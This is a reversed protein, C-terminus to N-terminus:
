PESQQILICDSIQKKCKSLGQKVDGLKDGPSGLTHVTTGRKLTEGEAMSEYKELNNKIIPILVPQVLIDVTRVIM